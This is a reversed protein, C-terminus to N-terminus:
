YYSIFPVLKSRVFLVLLHWNYTGNLHCIIFPAYLFVLFTVLFNFAKSCFLFSFGLFKTCIIWLQSKVLLFLFLILVNQSSNRLFSLFKLFENHYLIIQKLFYFLLSFSFLNQHVM